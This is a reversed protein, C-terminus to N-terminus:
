ERGRFNSDVRMLAVILSIEFSLSCIMFVVSVIFGSPVVTMSSDRVISSSILPLSAPNKQYACCLCLSRVDTPRVVHRGEIFTYQTNLVTFHLLDPNPSEGGLPFSNAVKLIPLHSSMM